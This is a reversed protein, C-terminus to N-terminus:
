YNLNINIERNYGTGKNVELFRKLEEARKLETTSPTQIKFRINFRSEFARIIEEKLAAEDPTEKGEKELLEFLGSLRDLFSLQYTNNFIKKLLHREIYYPMSGQQLFGKRFRRQASGMIKHNELMVEGFNTSLFCLPNHGYRVRKRDEIRAPLGLRILADTFCLSILRYTEYLNAKFLSHYPSVFSYTLERGHLIARGGTPRRVIPIHLSQCNEVSLDKIIQFYGLSVSPRIWSYFRLTPPFEGRLVSETIAIDLAM